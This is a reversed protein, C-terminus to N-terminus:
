RITALRATSVEVQTELMEELETVDCLAQALKADRSTIMREKAAIAVNFEKKATNKAELLAGEAAIRESAIKNLLEDVGATSRSTAARAKRAAERAEELSKTLALLEETHVAATKQEFDSERRLLQGRYTNREATMEKLALKVTSPSKPGRKKTV